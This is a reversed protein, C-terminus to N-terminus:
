QSGRFWDDFFRYTCAYNDELVKWTFLPQGEPWDKTPEGLQRVVELLVLLKEIKKYYRVPLDSVVFFGHVTTLRNHKLYYARLAQMWIDVSVFGVSGFCPHAIKKYGRGSFDKAFKGLENLDVDDFGAHDRFQVATMRM